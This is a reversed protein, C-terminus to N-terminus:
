FNKKEFKNYSNVFATDKKYLLNRARKVLNKTIKNTPFFSEQKVSRVRFDFSRRQGPAAVNDRTFKNFDTLGKIAKERTKETDKKYSKRRNKKSKSNKNHHLHLSGKEKKLQNLM